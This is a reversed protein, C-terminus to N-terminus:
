NQIIRNKRESRKRAFRQSNRSRCPLLKAYVLVFPLVCLWVERPQTLEAAM